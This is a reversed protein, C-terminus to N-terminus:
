PDLATKSEKEKSENHVENEFSCLVRKPKLGAIYKKYCREITWKMVSVLKAPEVSMWFYSRITLSARLLFGKRRKTFPFFFLTHSATLIPQQYLIKKGKPLFFFSSLTHSDLLLFCFILPSPRLRSCFISSLCSCEYIKLLINVFLIYRLKISIM